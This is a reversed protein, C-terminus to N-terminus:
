VVTWSGISSTVYFEDDATSVIELTDGVATATLSGGVGTTTTSGAFQITQSANQAIKVFGAGKSIVKFTDGITSSSPLTLTVLSANNAVYGNQAVMTDSTGTVDTWTFGGGVVDVLM